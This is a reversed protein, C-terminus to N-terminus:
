LFSTKLFELVNPHFCWYLLWKKFLIAPQGAVKNSFLCQCLQKGTFKAFNRLVSNRLSCGKHTSRFTLNWLVIKSCKWQESWIQDRYIWLLIHVKKAVKIPGNTLCHHAALLSSTLRNNTWFFLSSEGISWFDDALHINVNKDLCYYMKRLHKWSIWSTTKKQLDLCHRFFANILYRWFVDWLCRLLTELVSRLCSQFVSKLFRFSLQRAFRVLTQAFCQKSLKYM